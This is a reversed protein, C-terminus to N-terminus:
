SPKAEVRSAALPERLRIYETLFATLVVLSNAISTLAHSQITDNSLKTDIQRAYHEALKQHEELTSM